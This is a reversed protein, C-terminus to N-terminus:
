IGGIREGSRPSRAVLDIQRAAWEEGTHYLLAHLYEHSITEVVSLPDAPDILNYLTVRNARYNYRADVQAIADPAAGRKELFRRLRGLWYSYEELKGVTFTPQDVLTVIGRARKHRELRL